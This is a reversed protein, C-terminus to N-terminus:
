TVWREVTIEWLADFPGDADDTRRIDWAFKEGFADIVEDPYPRQHVEVTGHGVVPENADELAFMVRPDDRVNRTKVYDAGTCIWLRDDLWVFWTPSLHPRGDPRVTSLWINRETRLRDARDTM